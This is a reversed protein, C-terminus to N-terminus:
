HLLEDARGVDQLQLVDEVVLRRHVVYGLARLGGELLVLRAERWFEELQLLGHVDEALDERAQQLDVLQAVHVEPDLGAEQFVEVAGDFEGM